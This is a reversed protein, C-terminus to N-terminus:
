NSFKSLTLAPAASSRSLEHKADGSSKSDAIPLFMSQALLTPKINKADLDKMVSDFHEQPNTKKSFGGMISFPPPFKKSILDMHKGLWALNKKGRDGIFLKDQFMEALCFGLNEGAEPYKLLFEYCNQFSNEYFNEKDSYQVYSDIHSIGKRLLRHESTFEILRAFNNERNSDLLLAKTKQLSTLSKLIEELYDAKKILQLLYSENLLKMHHLAIILSILAPVKGEYVTTGTYLDRKPRYNNPDFKHDKAFQDVHQTLEEGLMAQVREYALMLERQSSFEEVIGPYDRFV